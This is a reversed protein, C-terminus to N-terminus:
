DTLGQTHAQKSAQNSVRHANPSRTRAALIATCADIGVNVTCPREEEEEEEEHGARGGNERRGGSM